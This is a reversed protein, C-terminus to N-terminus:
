YYTKNKDEESTNNEEEFDREINTITDPSTQKLNVRARDQWEKNSGDEDPNEGDQRQGEPKDVGKGCGFNVPEKKQERDSRGSSVPDGSGPSKQGTEPRGSQDTHETEPISKRGEENKRPSLSM